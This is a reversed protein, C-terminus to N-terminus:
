EKTQPGAAPVLRRTRRALTAAALVCGVAVTGAVVQVWVLGEGIADKTEVGLAIDEGAIVDRIADVDGVRLDVVYFLVAGGIAVGYTICLARVFQHAANVRGMESESSSAQLLTLAPTSVLGVSLGILSFAGFMVVLSLDLAVSVGSLAVGPLILISGLLIVDPERWKALIRSYVLSGVTWGVTLFVLSFAAFEVSRGRTTQVYLPVYNDAALAVVLVLGATVHIWKLPFRTIHERSLVPEDARGSHRWYVAVLVMTAAAAAIVAWWRVGIQAVAVLSCAIMAGLIAVGRWDTRIATPRGRTSPLTTWGAALALATLPLQAVFILRWSGFALLTGAIAPGGFGMVGWVVSNAAFARPRLEHPYALGVAGLAVAFVLGGGIGQVVRALVLLPMSPALAAAANAVLFWIGTVRFTRRVGIADIVPGAVIIAIASTALYSTIVWPLLSVHGLNEAISPLAAVIALGDFAVLSIITLNAITVPLYPGSWIGSGTPELGGAATDSTM